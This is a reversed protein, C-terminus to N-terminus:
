LESYKTSAWFTGDWMGEIKEEKVGGLINRGVKRRAESREEKVGGLINRGVKRRAESREEKM